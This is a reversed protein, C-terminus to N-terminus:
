VQTPLQGSCFPSYVAATTGIATRVRNLYISIRDYNVSITGGPIPIDNDRLVQPSFSVNSDAASHLPEAKGQAQAQM